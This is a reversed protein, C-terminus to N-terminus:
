GELARRLGEAVRKPGPFYEWEFIHPYPTDWGTVRVIPAELIARLKERSWAGSYESVEKPQEPQAKALEVAYVHTPGYMNSRFVIWKMDPTFTVNPELKYDHKSMNVLREFTFEGKGPHFLNIWQDDKSRAVMGPGGGDGAFGVGFRKLARRRTVSQALGKALEDFKDNM